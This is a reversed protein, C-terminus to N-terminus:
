SAAGCTCEPEDAFAVPVPRPVRLLADVPVDLAEALADMTQSTASRSESELLSLYSQQIGAAAAVDEQTRGTLLRFAKLAPGNQPATGLMVVSQM